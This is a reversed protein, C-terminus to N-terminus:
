SLQPEAAIPPEPVPAPAPPAAPKARLRYCVAGFLGVMTFPAALMFLVSVSIAEAQVGFGELPTGDKNEATALSDRCSPCAAVGGPSGFAAIFLLLSLILRKMRVTYGTIIAMVLPKQQGKVPPKERRLKNDDSWKKAKGERLHRM